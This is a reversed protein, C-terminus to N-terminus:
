RGLDRQRDLMQQQGPWSQYQPGQMRQWLQQVHAAMGEHGYLQPVPPRALPIVGGQPPQARSLMQQRTLQGLDPDESGLIIGNLRKPGVGLSEQYTRFQAQELTQQQERVPGVWATLLRSAQERLGYMFYGPKMYLDEGQSVGRVVVHTHPHPTDYHDAAMWELPTGLDREVQRMYGEIFATRDFHPFQPFEPFSVVFTFRHHDARVQQTFREPDSSGPGYLPADMGERGKGQQLYGAQIGQAKPGPADAKVMVPQSNPALPRLAAGRAHLHKLPVRLGARQSRGRGIHHMRLHIDLEGPTKGAM